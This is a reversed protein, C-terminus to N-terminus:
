SFTGSAKHDHGKATGSSWIGKSAGIAAAKSTDAMDTNNQNM